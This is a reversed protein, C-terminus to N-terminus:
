QNLFYEGSSPIWQDLFSWDPYLYIKMFNSLGHKEICYFKRNREILVPQKEFVVRFLKNAKIISFDLKREISIPRRNYDIEVSCRM